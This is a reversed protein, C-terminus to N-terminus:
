ARARNLRNTFRFQRTREDAVATAQVRPLPSRDENASQGKYPQNRKPLWLGLEKLIATKDSEGVEYHDLAEVIRHTERSAIHWLVDNRLRDVLSTSITREFGYLQDMRIFDHWVNLWDFTAVKRGLSRFLADVNEDGGFGRLGRPLKSTPWADRRCGFLFAGHQPVDAVEPWESPRSNNPLNPDPNEYSQWMALMNDRYEREQHTYLRQGSDGTLVAHFLGDFDNHDTLWDLTQKIAGARILCHCDIVIVWEGSAVDFVKAKPPFTGQQEGFDIVRVPPDSSENFIHLHRSHNAYDDGPKPNNNIVVIEWSYGADRLEKAHTERLANITWRVRAADEFTAMGITLTKTAPERVQRPSEDRDNCNVCSRMKSHKRSLSCEGHLDCAYVDFPQGKLSCLDCTGIRAVSSQRHTCPLKDSTVSVQQSTQEVPTIVGGNKRLTWARRYADIPTSLSYVKTEDHPDRGNYIRLEHENPTFGFEEIFDGETM